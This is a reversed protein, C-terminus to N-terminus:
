RVVQTFEPAIRLRHNEIVYIKTNQDTGFCYETAGELERRAVTLPKGLPMQYDGCAANFLNVTEEDVSVEEGFAPLEAVEGALIGTRVLYDELEAAARAVRANRVGYGDLVEAEPAHKRIDAVSTNLGGSGFTCFPIVVKGSLDNNALFSAVPPAYTGFWVPYGLYITDYAAVDISLPELECLVSDAMEQQCRAITQQFDGDYPTKCVLLHADLSTLDSLTEAVQQTAGTQSYYVIVAHPATTETESNKATQTCATMMAMAVLLISTNKMNNLIKHLSVTKSEILCVYM